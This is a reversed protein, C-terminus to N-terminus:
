SVRKWCYVVLYPPMNNHAQNGGAGSMGKWGNYAVGTETTYGNVTDNGKMKFYNGTPSAGGYGDMDTILGHQHNPMEDTSLTHTAEGGTLGASYTDGAALLFRDKLQEWTGGFLSAPSTDNVSMYISGVPYAALISYFDAPQWVVANSFSDYLTAVWVMSGVTVRACESSYSLDITNEDGVLQVKCTKGNPAEKVQAKYVRFCPKTEEAIVEKVIKTIAQRIRASENMIDAM